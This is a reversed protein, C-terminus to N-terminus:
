RLEPAFHGSCRALARAGVGRAHGGERARCRPAGYCSRARGSLAVRARGLPQHGAGDDWPAGRAAPGPHAVRPARGRALGTAAVGHDM